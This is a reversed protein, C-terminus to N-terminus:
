FRGLDGEGLNEFFAQNRKGGDGIELSCHFFDVGVCRVAYSEVLSVVNFGSFIILAHDCGFFSIADYQRAIGRRLCPLIM